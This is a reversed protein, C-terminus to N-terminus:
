SQRSEQGSAVEPGVVCLLCLLVGGVSYYVPEVWMTVDSSKSYVKIM